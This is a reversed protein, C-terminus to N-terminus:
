GSVARLRMDGLQCTAALYSLLPLAAGDSATRGTRLTTGGIVRTPTWAPALEDENGVSVIADAEPVHDTLGGNTESLLAVSRVGAQECARVALMLDTHSNGSSFATVIVACAGLHQALRASQMASRSKDVASSLYALAIIVGAFRLRVGHERLLDLMLESRQYFYTPNRVAAWDFAGNVLAGDLLERPDILTPVIGDLPRGYLLTQLLPGESAVQLIVCVAPLDESAPSLDIMERADPEADIAAFALTRAVALTGARIARDITPLDATTAPIFTLVVNLTSSWRTYMAAPGDMDVISDGDLQFERIEAPHTKDLDALALVAIGDLRLTRGTGAPALEGLTGPFSTEPADPKVSPEVADLVHVLRLSEGPSAVDIQVREIGPHQGALEALGAIDIELVGGGRWYTQDGEVIQRVHVTRLELPPANTPSIASPKSNVQGPRAYWTGDRRHSGIRRAISQVPNSLCARRVIRYDDATAVVSEDGREVERGSAKPRENQLATRDDAARAHGLLECGPEPRGGTCVDEAHQSRGHAAVHPKICSSQAHIGRPRGQVDEGVSGLQDNVVVARAHTAERRDVGPRQRAELLVHLCDTPGDHREEVLRRRIRPEGRQAVGTVECPRPKPGDSM